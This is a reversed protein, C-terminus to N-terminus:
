DRDDPVMHDLVSLVGNETNPPAVFRAAAIVDPHGNAMAFSLGAADMLEYDNLYDGFAVTQERTIGLAQQLQAVAAGKNARASMVDIWHRGSVVVQHTQKFRGLAPATGHEGDDFDYVAIKLVDDDADLINDVLQLKAYYQRVEDLFAEDTREVYASKKGCLVVGINRGNGALHRLVGVVDVVFDCELTISGLERDDRVVFTGNEAIFPMGDAHADFIRRLTAYQRGSAPAFVIGRKRLRELLGWTKEPVHADGDLLTGDMDAVVLRVDADPPLDRIPTPDPLSM